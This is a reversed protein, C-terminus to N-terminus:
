ERDRAVYEAMRREDLVLGYDSYSCSPILNACRYLKLSANPLSRPVKVKVPREQGLKQYLKKKM